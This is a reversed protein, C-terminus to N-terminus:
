FQDNHPSITFNLWLQPDPNFSDPDPYPNLDLMQLSDPDLGPGPNQHGFVSSLFYM